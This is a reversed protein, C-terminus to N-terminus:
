KRNEKKSVQMLDLKLMTLLQISNSKFSLIKTGPESPSEV